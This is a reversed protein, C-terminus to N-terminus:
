GTVWAYIIRLVAWATLPLTVFLIFAITLTVTWWTAATVFLTIALIGALQERPTGVGVSWLLARRATPIYTSPDTIELGFDVGASASM